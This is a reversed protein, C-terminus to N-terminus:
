QRELTSRLLTKLDLYASVNDNSSPVTHCVISVPLSTSRATDGTSQCKFHIFVANLPHWWFPHISLHCQLILSNNDVSRCRQECQGRQENLKRTFGNLTTEHIFMRGNQALAGDGSLSAKSQGRISLECCRIPSFLPPRSQNELTSM